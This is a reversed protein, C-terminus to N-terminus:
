KLEGHKACIYTGNKTSNWLLRERKPKKNSTVPSKSFALMKNFTEVLINTNLKNIVDSM